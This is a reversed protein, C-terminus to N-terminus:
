QIAPLIREQLTRWYSREPRDHINWGNFVAVIDYDPAVLVFQGGYGNGGFVTAQGGEHDPVWWQYGYGADPRGNDPVIDSM